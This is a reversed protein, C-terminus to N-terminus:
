VEQETKAIVQLNLCENKVKQQKVATLLLGMDRVPQKPQSPGHM